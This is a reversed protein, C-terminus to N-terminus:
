GRTPNRGKPLRRNGYLYKAPWGAPMSKLNDFDLEGPLSKGQDPYANWPKGHNLRRPPIGDPYMMGDKFYREEGSQISGTDEFFTWPGWSPIKNRINGYLSDLDGEDGFYTIRYYLEVPIRLVTRGQNAIRKCLRVDDTIIAVPKGLGLAEARMVLYHDDTVAEIPPEGQPDRVWQVLKNHAPIEESTFESDLDRPVWKEVYVHRDIGISPYMNIGRVVMPGDLYVGHLAEPWYVRETQVIRRFQPNGEVNQLFKAYEAELFEGNALEINVEDVLQDIDVKAQNAKWDAHASEMRAKFDSFTEASVLARSLENHQIAVALKTETVVSGWPILRRFVWYTKDGYQLTGAQHTDLARPIRQRVATVSLEDKIWDNFVPDVKTFYNLLGPVRPNRGLKAEWLFRNAQRMVALVWAQKTGSRWRRLFRAINLLNMFPPPKGAGGFDKPLYVCHTKSLAGLCTDQMLSAIVSTCYYPSEKPTWTLSSGLDSFKGIDTSSWTLRMSRTPLVLRIKPVDIFGLTEPRGIQRQSLWSEQYARPIRVLGEAYNGIGNNLSTDKDSVRLDMIDTLVEIRKVLYSANNSIAILDDGVEADIDKVPGKPDEPGGHPFFFERRDSTTLDVDTSTSGELILGNIFEDDYYEDAYGVLGAFKECISPVVM